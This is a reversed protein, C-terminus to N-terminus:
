AYLIHGACLVFRYATNWTRVPRICLRSDSATVYKTAYACWDSIGTTGFIFIIHEDAYFLLLGYNKMLQVKPVTKVFPMLARMHHPQACTIPSHLGPSPNVKDLALLSSATIRVDNCLRGVISFDDIFTGKDQAWDMTMLQM